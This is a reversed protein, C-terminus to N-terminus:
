RSKAVVAVFVVVLLLVVGIFGVVGGVVVLVPGEM